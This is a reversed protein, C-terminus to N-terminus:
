VPAHPYGHPPAHQVYFPPAGLALDCLGRLTRIAASLGMGLVLLTAIPELPVPPSEAFMALRQILDAPRAVSVAGALPSITWLWVCFALVVGGRAADAMGHLRVAFPHALMLAGALFLAIGYALVPWFLMTRLATWDVKAFAGPDLDLASWDTIGLSLDLPAVGTWWLVLLTGLTILGLGRASAGMFPSWPRLMPPMSPLPTQRAHAQARQSPTWKDQADSVQSLPESSQPGSSKPDQSPSPQPRYSQPRYPPPGGPPGGDRGDRRRRGDWDGFWKRLDDFDWAVYELMKLDRVRWKDLYDIRAGQREVIWAAVTAAGILVLSGSVASGIARSVAWGFDYSWMRAFVELVAIAAQLLLAAKVAFLWYPYVTPGVVHQPGDSYRAAIVVPHGVERLLAEVEDGTLPRGLDAEREEMRTLITDRLEAVIDERQARPLLAAVARLYDNVLDM